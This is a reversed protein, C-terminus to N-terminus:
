EMSDYFAKAEAIQEPTKVNVFHLRETRHDLFPMGHTPKTNCLVVLPQGPHATRCADKIAQIIKDRRDAKTGRENRFAQLCSWSCFIRTTDTPSIRYVWEPHFIFIKGCRSCKREAYSSESM